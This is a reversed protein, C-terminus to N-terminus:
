LGGAFFFFFCAGLVPPTPLGYPVAPAFQINAGRSGQKCNVQQKPLEFRTSAFIVRRISSTYLDMWGSKVFFVDWFFGVWRSRAWSFCRCDSGLSL